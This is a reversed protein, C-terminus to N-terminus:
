GLSAEALTGSALRAFVVSLPTLSGSSLSTSGSKRVGSKSIGTKCVDYVSLCCAVHVKTDSRAKARKCTHTLGQLDYAASM